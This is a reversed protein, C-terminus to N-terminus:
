LCACIILAIHAGAVFTDPRDVLSCVLAVGVVSGTQRTSNVVRAAFGSRAKEVSGL